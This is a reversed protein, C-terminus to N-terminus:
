ATPSRRMLYGHQMSSRCWTHQYVTRAARNSMGPTRTPCRRQERM